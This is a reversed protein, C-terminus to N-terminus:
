KILFNIVLTNFQAADEISPVHGVGAFVKISAGSLLQFKKYIKQLPSLPDRDGVIVLIKNKIKPLEEILLLEKKLRFFHSIAGMFFLPHAKPDGQINEYFYDILLNTVSKKKLVPQLLFNQMNTRSPKLATHALIKAIIPISSLCFPWAIHRTFGVPSVLVVKDTNQMKRALRLAIWAGFSHGIVHITGLKMVEIFRNVTQVFDEELNATQFNIKTSKGAGPLDIAYVTFYKALEKINLYWQGWGINAGHILLVSPGVGTVIYHIKYQGIRIFRSDVDTGIAKILNFEADM